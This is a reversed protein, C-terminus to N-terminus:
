ALSRQNSDTIVPCSFHSPLVLIDSSLLGKNYNKLPNMTCATERRLRNGRTKLKAVFRTGSVFDSRPPSFCSALRWLFLIWASLIDIAM